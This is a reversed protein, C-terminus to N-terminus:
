YRINRAASYFSYFPVSSFPCYGKQLDLRRQIESCVGLGVSSVAAVWIFAGIGALLFVPAVAMQIVHSIDFTPDLAM